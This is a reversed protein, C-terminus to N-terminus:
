SAQSGFHLHRKFTKQYDTNPGDCNRQGTTTHNRLLDWWLGRLRIERNWRGGTRCRFHRLWFRCGIWHALPTLLLVLFVISGSAANVGFKTRNRFGIGVIDRWSQTYLTLTFPLSGLIIHALTHAALRNLPSRFDTIIHRPRGSCVTARTL